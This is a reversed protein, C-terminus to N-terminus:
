DPFIGTENSLRAQRAKKQKSNDHKPKDPTEYAQTM